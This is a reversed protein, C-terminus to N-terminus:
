PARDGDGDVARLATSFLTPSQEPYSAEAEAINQKITQLVVAVHLRDARSLGSRMQQRLKEDLDAIHAGVKRGQETAVLLWARRDAPDRRRELLGRASLADIILGGSARSLGIRRAAQTQNVPGHQDVYSLLVAESLNIGLEGLYLDYLRRIARSTAM